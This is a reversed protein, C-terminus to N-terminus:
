YPMERVEGYTRMQATAINAGPLSVSDCFLTAIKQADGKQRPFKISVDYRNIRALGRTKVLSIFEKLMIEHEM